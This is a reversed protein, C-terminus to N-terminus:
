SNYDKFEKYNALKAKLATLAYDIDPIASLVADVDSLDRATSVADYLTNVASYIVKDWALEERTTATVPKATFKKKM